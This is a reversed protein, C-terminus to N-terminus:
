RSNFTLRQIPSPGFRAIQERHSKTPYGKHTEYGYQPYLWSYRLMMRDRATKALISAAM